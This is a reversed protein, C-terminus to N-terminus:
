DFQKLINRVKTLEEQYKILKNKELNVKELPAKALFNANNLMGEGRKIEQELITLQKLLEAKLAFNGDGFLSIEVEGKVFTVLPQEKIDEELIVEKAFTFRKLVELFEPELKTESVRMKFAANPPLNSTAKFSRIESIFHNLLEYKKISKSTRKLAIFPQYSEEMISNLHGPIEVYITEAVDPTLPYILRLITKLAYLLVWKTEAGLKEDKSLLLVKSFELYESSFVEYVFSILYKSSLHIQYKDFNKFYKKEFDSLKSLFAQNIFSFTTPILSLNVASTLDLIYRAVNWFKNLFNNAEKLKDDSYRFDIGPSVSSLLFLRLADLGYTNIVVVPDIGNGLSKNMKRGSADRFIGHIFVNRFPVEKTFYLSSFIMRSIWFFIIDYASVQIDLPFYRALHSPIKPWGLTSFPWLASSFWTDLVDPDQYYFKPDLPTESVVVAETERHYYVPIQHGWWLQRSICWDEANNMWNLFIKEYKAPIWKLDRRHKIANEALPRMKLFWQKSLYPEIVAGSRESFGLNHKINEVKVVLDLAILDSILQERAIFRDLGQYKHGLANITGDKNMCNPMALHYKIGLNYDNQDHAPTCKMMGTGFSPDVYDDFILPIVEQNTPNVFNKGQYKLYRQDKPHAVLAVDAFCTEPRTTAIVVFASRDELYYKLYYFKAEVDKRIVEMNSIATKLAPDWNIIREGQYILGAEYYEKFVQNVVQNLESDLTFRLFRHSLSANLFEWQKKIEEAYVDKWSWAAKLFAERTIKSIDQGEDKLKQMVKAQTAIGAHDMGPVWLVDYGALRKYRVIADQVTTDLAHGLHLKGTINPPPLVLSYPKKKVDFTPEFFGAERWKQYYKGGTLLHDYRKPLM